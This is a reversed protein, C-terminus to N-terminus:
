LPLAAEVVGLKMKESAEGGPTSGGSIGSGGSGTSVTDGGLEGVSRSM